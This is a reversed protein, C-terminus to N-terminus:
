KRARFFADQRKSIEDPSLDEKHTAIAWQHGFPDTVRAYRDGWFMDQPPMASIAGADVARKFAVDCDDVYLMLSGTTGQLTAPATSGMEPVEDALMVISDGIRIEAHMLKGDPGPMRYREEAGFARAYFEIAREAGRVNIHPTVTHFGEPKSGVKAM